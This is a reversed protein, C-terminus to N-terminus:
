AAPHPSSAQPARLASAGASNALVDAFAGADIQSANRHYDDLFEQYRPPLDPMPAIHDARFNGMRRQQALVRLTGSWLHFLYGEACFRFDEINEGRAALADQLPDAPLGHWEFIPLDDAWVRRPDVLMSCLLVAPGTRRESPQKEGLIAADQKRASELAKDLTDPRLVVVDSDLIWVREIDRFEREKALASFARNLGPGHGQPWRNRILTILGHQELARLDDLSGDTSGNDVVVVAELPGPRLVAFLSYLLQRLLDRTNYNVTVAVVGRPAPDDVVGPWAVRRRREIRDGFKHTYTRSKVRARAVYSGKMGSVGLKVVTLSDGYDCSM